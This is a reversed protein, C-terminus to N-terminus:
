KAGGELIKDIEWQEWKGSTVMWKTSEKWRNNTPPTTAKALNNTL